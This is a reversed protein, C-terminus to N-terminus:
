LLKSTKVRKCSRLSNPPKPVRLTATKMTRRLTSQIVDIGATLEKRDDESALLASQMKSVQELAIYFREQAKMAEEARVDRETSLANLRAEYIARERQAEERATGSSITDMLFIATVVVTWCLLLGASGLM